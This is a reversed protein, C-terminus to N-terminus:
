DERFQIVKAVARNGDSADAGSAAQRQRSPPQQRNEAQEIKRLDIIRTRAREPAKGVVVEVGTKRLSAATVRLAFASRQRTVRGPRGSQRGRKPVIRRPSSTCCSLPLGQGLVVSSSSPALRLPSRIARSWWRSWGWQRQQGTNTYLKRAGFGSGSAVQCLADSILPTITSLNQIKTRTLIM